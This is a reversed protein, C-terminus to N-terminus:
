PASVGEVLSAHGRRLINIAANTDRDHVAGCDGCVWERIRLGAIGKPREPPLAGCSSCTQSTFSESVEEFSAGHGIAKYHLMNRFNSWGADHVSKAMSTKALGAANVNGVAIHDFERVIRTSLKHLFDKRRAAIRAHLNRAQRKKRARQATALREEIRRYHRPTEVKEGTSLTAFDKLGLDIGIGSEVSRAPTDAVEVVINLFWNGKADESFNSGDCIKGDPLPRSKFIRFLRKQFVFGDPSQKVLYGKMPVWGLSRKGRYRLHSKKQQFRSKAYRECVENITGSAIGLEHYSGTTLRNLDFGSPWKTGWKLAHKQVNNCYNWVFNVARAQRNLLGNMSKVRYRFTLKM